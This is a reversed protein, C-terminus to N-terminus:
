SGPDALPGFDNDDDMKIAQGGVHVRDQGESTLVTNEDDLVRGLGEAGAVLPSPDPGKAIETAEAEVGM